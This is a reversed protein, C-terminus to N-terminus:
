GIPVALKDDANKQMVQSTLFFWSLFTTSDILETCFADCVNEKM